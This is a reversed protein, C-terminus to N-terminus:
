DANKSQLMEHLVTCSPVGTPTTVSSKCSKPVWSPDDQRGSSRSIREVSEIRDVTIKFRYGGDGYPGGADFTGVFVALVVGIGKPFKNFQKLSDGELGAGIEVWTKDMRDPCCAPPELRQIEFMYRYIARIRIRKGSFASPDKAVQCYTVDQPATELKNRARVTGCNLLLLSFIFLSLKM